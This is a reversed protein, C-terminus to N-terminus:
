WPLIERNPAHWFCGSEGPGINAMREILAAASEPPDILGNHGTMDTRVWGPHLLAVSIGRPQLDHALSVAAMNVAAKSMRYGYSNGSTNDAISGMRSTVIGFKGGKDLLPTLAEAAMLPGLSNVEFQERINNVAEENIEGLHQFRMLGSVVMVWELRHGTLQTALERLTSHEAVDVGTLIKAGSAQLEDPATSRVTALVEDGRRCLQKVVELGIGRSAGIILKSM